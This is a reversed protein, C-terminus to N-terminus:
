YLHSSKCLSPSLFHSLSQSSKRQNPYIIMCLVLESSYLSCEFVLCELVLVMGIGSGNWKHGTKLLDAM